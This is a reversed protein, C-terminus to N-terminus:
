CIFAMKGPVKGNNRAAAKEMSDKVCFYLEKCQFIYYLSFLNQKTYYSFLFTLRRYVPFRVVSQMFYWTVDNQANQPMCVDKDVLIHM